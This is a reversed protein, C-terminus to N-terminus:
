KQVKINAIAIQINKFNTINQILKTVGMNIILIYDIQLFSKVRLCFLQEFVLQDLHESLSSVLVINFVEEGM